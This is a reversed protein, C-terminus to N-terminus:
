SGINKISIEERHSDVKFGKDGFEVGRGAFGHLRRSIDSKRAGMVFDVDLMHQKFQEGGGIAVHQANELGVTDVGLAQM